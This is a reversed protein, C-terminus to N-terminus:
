LRRLRRLRRNRREDGGSALFYRSTLPAVDDGSSVEADCTPVDTEDLATGVGVEHGCNPARDLLGGYTSCCNAMWVLLLVNWADCSVDYWGTSHVAVTTERAITLVDALSLPSLTHDWPNLCEENDSLCM